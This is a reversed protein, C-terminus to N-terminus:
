TEKSVWNIGQLLVFDLTRSAKVLSVSGDFMAASGSTIDLGPTVVLLIADREGALGLTGVLLLGDRDGALGPTVVLLIDDIEGPPILRLSIM